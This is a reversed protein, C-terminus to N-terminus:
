SSSPNLHTVGRALSVELNQLTYVTFAVLGHGLRQNAVVVALKYRRALERLGQAVGVLEGGRRAMQAPGEGTGSTKVRKADPRDFEARFNAAISDIVIVGINHRAVTVPLQYRLIHDQTELDSCTISLVKDTSVPPNPSFRTNLSSAIQLLRPTSLPSETSIYVAGRGHLQVTLALTLLFQTKGAGSEGVFETITGTPIGGNLLSNITEDGTSLFTQSANISTAPLIPTDSSFAASLNTIFRKIELLPPSLSPYKKDTIRRSIDTPDLSLLDATTLNHSQFSTLLRTNTPTYHPLLQTLDTM